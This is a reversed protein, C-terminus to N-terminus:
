DPTLNWEHRLIALIRSDRWQGRLNVDQRLLGEQQM